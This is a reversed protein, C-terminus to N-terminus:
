WSRRFSATLTAGNAPVRSTNLNNRLLQSYVPLYQENFVNEIGVTLLDRDSARYRAVIDFTTYQEVNRRGFSAVGNLRYDRDGSLLGQFRVDLGEIPTVELYATIKLPPIRYGTMPQSIIATAARERGTIYTATAGARLPDARSGVDITAEVGRIREATRLLILGNNFSQVDGLESTTRFLALTGRARGMRGRWGIEYSDIKVPQLDSNSIAFGPTANRLQLGIDPLQFGQSFSAYFDQGALPTATASANFTWADFAIRGGRITVPNTARLQSLPVFDDFTASARDYRAGGDVAFWDAIRHQAQIFGGYTLTRLEPMYILTATRNFVLGGSRDYAVPDFVDDPMDSTEHNLDAGWTVSTRSALPTEITLRDGYVESNQTVQDVNRGRTAVGRADFPTFRTFFDRWYGLLTVRSGFVDRAAANATVVTSRVQNQDALVLGAIPRALAAGPALRAVSPDAAFDTNQDARYHSASLQLYAGDAFRLGAKGGINWVDSDFLDGQSPEPARRNGDGDFSGGIRQYGGNAAFEFAGMSGSVFQQVRGGLGDSTVNSLSATGAVVTELALPGGAQRTNISIIGGTAGSGYIASGGRLVEIRDINSPDLSILNRASDRNTNYPVGDVLVLAGRGRLTQGFDTITRSSDALGPVSKALITSLTDSTTRETEIRERELTTVQHGPAVIGNRSRQATVIVDDNAVTTPPGQEQAAAPTCLVSGLAIAIAISSTTRRRLSVTPHPM